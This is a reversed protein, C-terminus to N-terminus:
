DIAMKKYLLKLVGNEFVIERTKPDLSPDLKLQINFKGYKSEARDIRFGEFSPRYKGGEITVNPWEKQSIKLDQKLVGPLEIVYSVKNETSYSDMVPTFLGSEMKPTLWGLTFPKLCFTSKYEDPIGIHMQGDKGSQISVQCNEMKDSEVFHGFHKNSFEVVSKVPDLFRGVEVV